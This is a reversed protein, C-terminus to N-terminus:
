VFGTRHRWELNLTIVATWLSCRAAASIRFDVFWISDNAHTLPSFDFPFPALICRRTPSFTDLTSDHLHVSKQQFFFFFFVLYYAFINWLSEKIVYVQIKRFNSNQERIYNEQSLFYGLPSKIITFTSNSEEYKCLFTVSTMLSIYILIYNIIYAENQVWPCISIHM